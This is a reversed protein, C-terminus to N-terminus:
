RQTAHAACFSDWEAVRIIPGSGGSEGRGTSTGAFGIGRVCIRAVNPFADANRYVEVYDVDGIFDPPAGEQGGRDQLQESCGTVVAVLAATLAMKVM